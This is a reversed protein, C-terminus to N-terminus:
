ENAIALMVELPLLVMYTIALWLLLPRRAIGGTLAAALGLLVVVALRLAMALAARQMRATPTGASVAVLLWSALAAAVFSIGCGALMAVIATDGALRRTPVFGVAVLVSVIAVTWGIFRAYRGGRSIGDV